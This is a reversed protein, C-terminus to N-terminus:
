GTHSVTEGTFRLNSADGDDWWTCTEGKCCTVGGTTERCDELTLGLDKLWQLTHANPVGDYKRGELWNVFTQTRYDLGNARASITTAEDVTRAVTVYAKSIITGSQILSYVIVGGFALLAM